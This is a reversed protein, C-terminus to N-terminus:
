MKIMKIKTMCFQSRRLKAVSMNPQFNCEVLYQISGLCRLTQLWQTDRNFYINVNYKLDTRGQSMRMNQLFLYGTPLAERIPIAIKSVDSRHKPYCLFNPGDSCETDKRPVSHYPYLFFQRKFFIWLTVLYPVLNWLGKDKSISRSHPWQSHTM